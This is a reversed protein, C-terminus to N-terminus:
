VCRQLVNEPTKQAAQEAASLSSLGSVQGIRPHSNVFLAKEASNWTNVINSAADLCELYSSSGSKIYESLQPVLMSRLPPSPELVVSLFVLIHEQRSRETMNVLESFDIM